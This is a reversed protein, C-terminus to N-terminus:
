LRPVAAPEDRMYKLEDFFAGVTRFRWGPFRAPVRLDNDLAAFQSKAASRGATPKKLIEFVYKIQCTLIRNVACALPLHAGGRFSQLGDFRFPLVHKLRSPQM